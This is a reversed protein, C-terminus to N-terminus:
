LEAGWPEPQLLQNEKFFKYVLNEILLHRFDDSARLDSLPTIETRITTLFDKITNTSIDKNTLFKESKFLRLPTAAVGGAA